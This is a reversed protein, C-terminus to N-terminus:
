GFNGFHRLPLRWSLCDSALGQLGGGYCLFDLAFDGGGGLRGGRAWGMWGSSVSGLREVELERKVNSFSM